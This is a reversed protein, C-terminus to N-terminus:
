PLAQLRAILESSLTVQAVEEVPGKMWLAGHGDIRIHLDGGTMSATVDVNADVLGL